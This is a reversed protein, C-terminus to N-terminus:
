NQQKRVKAKTEMTVKQSVFLKITGTKTMKILAENEQIRNGLIIINTDLYVKIYKAKM